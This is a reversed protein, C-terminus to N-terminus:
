SAHGRRYEAVAWTVGSVTWVIAVVISITLGIGSRTDVLDLYNLISILPVLGWAILFTESSQQGM